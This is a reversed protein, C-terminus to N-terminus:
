KIRLMQKLAKLDSGALEINRGFKRKQKSSKHELNHSRMTPRRLIKCTGTV